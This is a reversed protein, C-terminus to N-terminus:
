PIAPILQYLRVSLTTTNLFDICTYGVGSPTAASILGGPSAGGDGSGSAFQAGDTQTYQQVSWPGLWGASSAGITTTYTTYPQVQGGAKQGILHYASTTTAGCYVYLFMSGNNVFQVGAYTTSWATAFATGGTGAADIGVTPTSIPFTAMAAALASSNLNVPSIPCRTAVM